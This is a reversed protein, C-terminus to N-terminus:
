VALDSAEARASPRFFDNSFHGVTRTAAADVGGGIVGSVVPVWKALTIVSRQTGYKAILMFGLRRNLARITTIPISAILSMSAKEGIVIGTRKIAEVGANGVVCLLLATRVDETETDYGHVSAISAALHAQVLIAAGMNAPVSIPLTTWGGVNTVFGQAGAVAVHTAILRRIAEDPTRGRGLADKASHRASQFPGFGDVAKAVLTNSAKHQARALRGSEQHKDGKGPEPDVPSGADSPQDSTVSSESRAM